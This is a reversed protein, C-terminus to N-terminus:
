AIAFRRDTMLGTLDLIARGDAQIGHYWGLRDGLALPAPRLGQAPITAVGEVEDALIAFRAAVGAGVILWSEQTSYPISQGRLAALDHVGVITGRVNAVGVVVPSTGPVPSIVVDRTIAALEQVPIGYSGDGRTFTLVDAGGEARQPPPDRYRDARRRLLEEVAARSRHGPLKADDPRTM